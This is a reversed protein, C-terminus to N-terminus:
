RKQYAEFFYGHEKGSPATHLILKPMYKPM